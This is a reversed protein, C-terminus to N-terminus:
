NKLEQVLTKVQASLWPHQQGVRLLEDILRTRGGPQRAAEVFEAAVGAVAGHRRALAQVVEAGTQGLDISQAGTRWRYSGNQYFRGLAFGMAAGEPVDTEQPLLESLLHQLRGTHSLVSGSRLDVAMQRAYSVRYEELLPIAVPPLGVRVTLVDVTTDNGHDMVFATAGDHRLVRRLDHALPGQEGGALCVFHLRATPNAEVHPLDVRCENVELLERSLAALNVLNEERRGAEPYRALFEEQVSAKTRFRGQCAQRLVDPDAPPLGGYQRLVGDVADDESGTLFRHYLRDYDGPNGALDVGIALDFAHSRGREEQVQEGLATRADQYRTELDELLSLSTTLHEQVDQLLRLEAELGLVELDLAAHTREAEATASNLRDTGLRRVLPGHDGNLVALLRDRLTRARYRAEARQQERGELHEQIQESRVRLLELMAKLVSAAVGVGHHGMELPRLILANAGWTLEESLRLENEELLEGCRELAQGFAGPRLSVATEAPLRRGDTQQHAQDVYDFLSRSVGQDDVHNLLERRLGQGAGVLRLHRLNRQAQGELAAPAPAPGLHRDLVTCALQAGFYRLLDPLYLRAFGLTSFVKGTGTKPDHGLRLPEADALRGVITPGAQTCLLLHLVQALVQFTQDWDVTQGQGDHPGVVFCWDFSKHGRQTDAYLEMLQAYTNSRARDGNVSSEAGSTVTFVSILVRNRVGLESAARGVLDCIMRVSGSATGGPLGALITVHLTEVQVRAVPIAQRMARLVQNLGDKLQRLLNDRERRVYAASIRPCGRAAVQPSSLNLHDAPLELHEVMEPDGALQTHPPLQMQMRHVLEVSDLDPDGSLPVDPIAADTDISLTHVLSRVPSRLNEPVERLITAERYREFLLGTKKASTGLLVVLGASYTM